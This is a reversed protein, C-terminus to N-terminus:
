SVIVALPVVPKIHYILGVLGAKTNYGKV